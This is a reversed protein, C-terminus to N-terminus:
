QITTVDLWSEPAAVKVSDRDESPVVLRVHSVPLDHTVIPVDFLRRQRFWAAQARWRAYAANDPGYQHEEWLTAMFTAFGENLWLDAWDKCTVLDGFWQHSM